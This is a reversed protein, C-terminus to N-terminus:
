VVGRHLKEDKGFLFLTHVWSGGECRMQWIGDRWDGFWDEGSM